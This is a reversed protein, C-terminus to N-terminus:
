LINPYILLSIAVITYAVCFVLPINKEISAISDNEQARVKIQYSTTFIKAPLFREMEMVMENKIEIDKGIKGLAQIWIICLVFGFFVLACIFFNKPNSGDIQMDKIYSIGGVIAGNLTIWFNNLSERNESAKNVQETLIRYQELLLTKEKVNELDIFDARNFLIEHLNKGKGWKPLSSLVANWQKVWWPKNLYSQPQPEQELDQSMM